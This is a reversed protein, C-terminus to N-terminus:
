DVRHSSDHLLRKETRAGSGRGDDLGGHWRRCHSDQTIAQRVDRGRHEPPMMVEFEYRQANFDVVVRLARSQKRSLKIKQSVLQAGAAAKPELVLTQLIGARLADIQAQTAPDDSRAPAPEDFQTHTSISGSISGASGTYGSLDPEGSANRGVQSGSYSSPDHTSASKRRAGSHAAVTEDILRALPVWAVESGDALYLHVDEVGLHTATTSRNQAAIKVVLRGDNLTPDPMVTVVGSDKEATLGLSATESSVPEATSICCWLMAAAMAITRTM